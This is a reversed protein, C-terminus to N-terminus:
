SRARVGNSKDSSHQLYGQYARSSHFHRSNELQSIRSDHSDQVNIPVLVPAEVDHKDLNERTLESFNSTSAKAKNNRSFVSSKAVSSPTGTGGAATPTAQRFTADGM